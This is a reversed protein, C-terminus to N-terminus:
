DDVYAGVFKALVRVDFPLKVSSSADLAPPSCDTGDNFWEHKM